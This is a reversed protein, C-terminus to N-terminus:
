GTAVEAVTAGKQVSIKAEAVKAEVDPRTESAEALATLERGEITSLGIAECYQPFSTTGLMLFVDARRLELLDRGLAIQLARLARVRARSRRDLLAFRDPLRAATTSEPM